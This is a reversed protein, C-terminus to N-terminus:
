GSTVLPQLPDLFQSTFKKTIVLEVGWKSMNLLSVSFRSGRLTQTGRRKRTGGRRPLCMRTHRPWQLSMGGSALIVLRTGGPLWRSLLRFPYRKHPASTRKRTNLYSHPRTKRRWRESRSKGMHLQSSCYGGPLTIIIIVYSLIRVPVLILTSM